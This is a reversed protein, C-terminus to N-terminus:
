DMLKSVIIMNKSEKREAKKGQFYIAGDTFQQDQKITREMAMSELSWGSKQLTPTIIRTKVEAESLIQNYM